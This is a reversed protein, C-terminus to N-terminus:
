RTSPAQAEPTNRRLFPPDRWDWIRGPDSDIHTPALNWHWASLRAAGRQHMFASILLTVAFTTLLIRRAAVKQTKLFPIVPILLFIFYPIVDAFFRPGYTTGGWWHPFLSIVFGHVVIVGVLFHHLPPAEKRAHWLYLGLPCFLFVPSYVLLGRAPSILNAALAEPVAGHFGLRAALYYPPLIAGYLFLNYAIFPVAITAALAFYRLLYQRHYCAIYLTIAIISLSNTPRIVYAFALPLAAYPVLDPHRQARSLLLLTISLMLMSPGHQWLATAGISWASTCLALVLTLLLAERTPRHLRVTHFLVVATLAIFLAAIIQEVRWYYAALLSHHPDAAGRQQLATCIDPALLCTTIEAVELTAIFPTALLTTGIPFISYSHGDVEEIGIDGAARLLPGYENLDLNGEQLLSLAQHVTWRSDGSTGICTLLYFIWLAVFLLVSQAITKKV